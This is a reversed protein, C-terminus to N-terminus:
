RQDHPVTVLVTATSTNGSADRSEIVITYIRAGSGNRKARLQLTLPGTVVWDPSSGAPQNSTVSVIQATPAPDVDDATVMQVSVAVMKGNPPWLTSPTASVSSIVPPTTDPTEVEDDDVLGYGVSDQTAAALATQGSGDIGIRFIQGAYPYFILGFQDDAAPTGYIGAPSNPVDVHDTGDPRMTRLMPAPQNHLFVVRNASASFAPLQTFYNVIHGATGGDSPIRWISQTFPNGFVAQGFYIFGNRGWMPYIQHWNPVNSIAVKNSGDINMRWLEFNLTNFYQFNTHTLVVETGDPSLDYELTAAANPIAVPPAGQTDTRYLQGDRVFTVLGNAIRPSRDNGGNTLQQQESGDTKMIFINGGRQFVVRGSQNLATVTVNDFDAATHTGRLGVTGTASGQSIATMQTSPDGVVECTITQGSATARLRVWQNLAYPFPKYQTPQGPVSLSLFTGGFQFLACKCNDEVGTIYFASRYRLQLEADAPTYGSLVRVDAEVAYDKWGYGDRWVSEVPINAGTNTAHYSGASEFWGPLFPKWGVATGDDFSESLLVQAASPLAVCFLLVLVLSWRFRM